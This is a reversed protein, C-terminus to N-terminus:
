KVSIRAAISKKPVDNLFEYKFLLIILFVFLFNYFLQTSTSLPSITTVVGIPMQPMIPMTPAMGFAAVPAPTVNM